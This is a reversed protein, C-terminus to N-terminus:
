NREHDWGQWLHVTQTQINPKREGEGAILNPLRYRLSSNKFPLHGILGTVTM